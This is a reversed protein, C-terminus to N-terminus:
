PVIWRGSGMKVGPHEICCLNREEKKRRREGEEEEKKGEKNREGGERQL